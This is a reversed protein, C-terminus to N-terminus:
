RLTVPGNLAEMRVFKNISIPAEAYDGPQVRITGCGLADVAQRITRFPSTDSGNQTGSNQWDVFVIRPQLVWTTDPGAGSGGFLVMQKLRSDYAMAAGARPCCFHYPQGSSGSKDRWMSGDWEWTDSLTVGGSTGGFVVAIGRESDYAM